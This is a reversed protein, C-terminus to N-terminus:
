VSKTNTHKNKSQWRREYENLSSFILLKTHKHVTCCHASRWSEDVDFRLNFETPGALQVAGVVRHSHNTWERCNLIIVYYEDNPWQTCKEFRSLKGNGNFRPRSHACLKQRFTNLSKVNLIYKSKNICRDISCLSLSLERECVIITHITSTRTGVLIKHRRLNGRRKINILFSSLIFLIRTSKNGVCRVCM